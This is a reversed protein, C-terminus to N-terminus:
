PQVLPLKQIESNATPPKIPLTFTTTGIVGSSSTGVVSIISTDTKIQVRNESVAVSVISKGNVDIDKMNELKQLVEISPKNQQVQLVAEGLQALTETRAENVTQQSSSGAEPSTMAELVKLNDVKNDIFVTVAKEQEDNSLQKVQSVADSIGTQYATVQQAAGAADGQEALDSAELLKNTAQALSEETKELPNEAALLKTESVAEKLPYLIDTPLIIALQKDYSALLESVLLKLERAEAPHSIEFEKVWSLVGFLETQFEALLEDTKAKDGKELMALAEALKESVTILIKKQRDVDNLTLAIKTDETLGKIAYFPNGPLVKIQDQIQEKTEQKIAEIYTKDAELNELIWLDEKDGIKESVIKSPAASQTDKIEASFGKVLTTELVKKETAVTLDVKNKVAAVKAKGKASISVDFAAKKKAVAVTNVAKVQFSSINNILNIVRSWLRGRHLIIEIITETKNLPNVFLRSIKIETDESLRSVSQDLFRITARSDKGTRIIDDTRLVFGPAGTIVDKGRIIDVSGTTQEITTLFSAEVREIQFTYHFVLTFLFVFSMSLAFVKRRLGPRLIAPLGRVPHFEVLTILKERLLTRFYQGPLIALALQKIKGIIVEFGFEQELIKPLASIIQRKLSEKKEESLTIYSCKRLKEEFRRDPSFM